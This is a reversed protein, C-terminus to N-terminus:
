KKMNGVNMLIPSLFSVVGIFMVMSGSLLFSNSIGINEALTGTCLLGIM